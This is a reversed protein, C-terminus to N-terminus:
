AKETTATASMANNLAPVLVTTSHEDMFATQAPKHACILNALAGAAFKVVDVRRICRLCTLIVPLVSQQLLAGRANDCDICSNGCVRLCQAVVDIGRSHGGSSDSATAQAIWEARQKLLSAVRVLIGDAVLQERVAPAKGAADGLRVLTGIFSAGDAESIDDTTDPLATLEGHAPASSMVVSPFQAAPVATPSFNRQCSDAASSCDAKHTSADVSIDPVHQITHAHQSATQIHTSGM